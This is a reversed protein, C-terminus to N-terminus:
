SDNPCLNGYNCFTDILTMSFSMFHCLSHDLITNIAIKCGIQTRKQVNKLRKSRAFIHSNM